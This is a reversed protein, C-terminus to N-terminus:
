LDCRILHSTQLFENVASQLQESQPELIFTTKVKKMLSFAPMDFAINFSDISDDTCEYENVCHLLAATHDTSHYTSVDLASHAQNVYLTLGDNICADKCIQKVQQETCNVFATNM